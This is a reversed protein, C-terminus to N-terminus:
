IKSSHHEEDLRRYLDTPIPNEKKNAIVQGDRMVIWRVGM